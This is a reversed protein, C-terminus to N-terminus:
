RIKEFEMFQSIFDINNPGITIHKNAKNYKVAITIGGADGTLCDEEKNYHLGPINTQRDESIIDYHDGSKKITVPKVSSSLVSGVPHWKGTFKKAPSTCSSFVSLIYIGVILPVYKKIQLLYLGM